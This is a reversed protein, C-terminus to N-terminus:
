KLGPCSTDLMAIQLNVTTSVLIHFVQGFFPQCFVDLVPDMDYLAQITECSSNKRNLLFDM